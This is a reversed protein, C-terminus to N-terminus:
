LGPFFEMQTFTITGTSDEVDPCAFVLIRTIKTVDPIASLNWTYGTGEESVVFLGTEAQGGEYEFKVLIKYANEGLSASDSTMKVNMVLKTMGALKTGDIASFCYQWSGSKAYDIKLANDVVSAAFTGADNEKWEQALLSVSAPLANKTFQFKNFTVTGTADEVDPCVFVLVRNIKTVDLNPIKTLDWNYDKATEGVVFLGTECQGGEYEFKVLLKYANDGLSASDTTMKVNMELTTMGALASGDVAHFFFQWGGSKSFAIDLATGNVTDAFTGADNEAWDADILSVTTPAPPTPPEGCAVLCISLALVLATLVILTKKM